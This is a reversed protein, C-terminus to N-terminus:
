NKTRAAALYLTSSVLHHRPVWVIWEWSIVVVVQKRLRLWGTLWPNLCVFRRIMWDTLSEVFLVLWGIWGLSVPLRHLLSREHKLLCVFPPFLSPLVFSPQSSPDRWTHSEPPKHVSQSGRPPPPSPPSGSCCSFWGAVCSWLFWVLSVVCSLVVCCFSRWVRGFVSITIERRGSVSEASTSLLKMSRARVCVCAGDCAVSVVVKVVMVWWQGLVMRVLWSAWCWRDGYGPSVM